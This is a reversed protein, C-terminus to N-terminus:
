QPFIGYDAYHQTLLFALRETLHVAFRQGSYADMEDKQGYNKLFLRYLDPNEKLFNM